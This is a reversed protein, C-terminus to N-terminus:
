TAIAQRTNRRRIEMGALGFCAILVIFFSMDSHNLLTTETVNRIYTQMVAAALFLSTVQNRITLSRMIAGFLALSFLTFSAVGILGLDFYLDLFGNHANELQAFGIRQEINLYLKSQLIARGVEGDVWFARYGAGILTHDQAFALGYDWFRLRGSLTSNRGLLELAFSFSTVVICAVAVFTLIAFSYAVTPTVRVGLLKQRRVTNFVLMSALALITSALAMRSNAMYLGFLVLLLLSVDRTRNRSREMFLRYAFFVACISCAAGFQARHVFIGSWSGAHHPIFSSRGIGAPEILALVFSLLVTTTTVIGIIHVIRRLPLVTIMHLAIMATMLLSIYRRASVETASSWLVSIGIWSLLLLLPWSQQVTTLTVDSRFYFGRLSVLTAIILVVQPILSTVDPGIRSVLVLPLLIAKTFSLVVLILTYEDVSLTSPFKRNQTAIM